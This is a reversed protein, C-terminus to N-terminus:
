ESVIGLEAAYENVQELSIGSAAARLEAAKDGVAKVRGWVNVVDVVTAKKAQASDLAMQLAAAYDISKLAAVARVTWQDFQPGRPRATLDWDDTGSEYHDRLRVIAEYKQAATAAAGTVKDKPIAAANSLRQTWGHIEAYDRCIQAARSPCFHVEGAGIVNIILRQADDDWKSTVVSNSKPKDNM